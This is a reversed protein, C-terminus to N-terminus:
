WCGAEVEIQRDDGTVLDLVLFIGMALSYNAAEEDDDHSQYLSAM